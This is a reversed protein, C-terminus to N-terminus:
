QHVYVRMWGIILRAGEEAIERCSLLADSWSPACFGPPLWVPWSRMRAAALGLGRRAKVHLSAKM